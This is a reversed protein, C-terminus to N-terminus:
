VTLHKRMHENGRGGKVEFDKVFADLDKFEDDTLEVEKCNEVVRAVTTAGPIPMLIPNGFRGSQYSIWALCIQAPTVNKADAVQKVKHYLKFNHNINEEKFRDFMEVAETREQAKQFKGALLGSGLPSYAIVTIGLDACAQAIGEKFIHTEIISLELEVAAIPHVKAARRITQASVESLGIGSIKGAKVYDAIASITDELPVESDVRACEFISLKVKGDLIELAEDICKRVQDPKCELKGEKFNVCGKVSLTVKSADEPYKTFYRNVLKLNALPNDPMNYFTGANWFTAGQKIAEKMTAFAEKDPTVQPRWTFGMLGFGIRSLPVDKIDATFLM